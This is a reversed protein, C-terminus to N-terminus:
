EDKDKESEHSIGLMDLYKIPLILAEGQALFAVEHLQPFLESMESELVELRELLPKGAELQRQMAEDDGIRSAVRYGVGIDEMADRHQSWSRVLARGTRAQNVRGDVFEEKNDEFWNKVNDEVANSM